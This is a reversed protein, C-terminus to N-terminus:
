RLGIGPVSRILSNAFPFLQAIGLCFIAALALAAPLYKLDLAWFEIVIDFWM